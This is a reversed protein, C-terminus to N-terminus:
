QVPQINVALLCRTLWHIPSYPSCLYLFSTAQWIEWVLLLIKKLYAWFVVVRSWSNKEAVKCFFFGLTAYLLRVQCSHTQATGFRARQWGCCMTSLNWQDRPFQRKWCSRKLINLCQVRLLASAACFRRTHLAPAARAWQAKVGRWCSRLPARLPRLM